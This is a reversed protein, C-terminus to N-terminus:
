AKLQCRVERHSVITQTTAIGVATTKPGPRQETVDFRKRTRDSSSPALSSPRNSWAITQPTNSSREHGKFRTISSSWGAGSPTSAQLEQFDNPGLNEVLREKGFVQVIQDTCRKYDPWSRPSLKGQGQKREKSTLFRRCLERVTLGKGDHDRPKRGAYLDDRQMQYEDVAAQWDKAYGFYYRKGNIRKYLRGSPPHYSLPFDPYPKTWGNSATRTAVKTTSKMM